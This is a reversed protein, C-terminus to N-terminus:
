FNYNDVPAEHKVLDWLADIQSAVDASLPGTKLCALTEELQQNTSAGIILADGHQKKLACNYKVWRYALEARSCGAKDAIEGWRDLAELLSPRVYMKVYIGVGANPNFRGAGDIAQQKTKTLFGGAIPSYAYFSIGLERLTPLLDFELHRAVPNFNGQYVTPLIYDNQKCHNYVALVQEVNFNSLGFRSFLGAKFAENVDALYDAM